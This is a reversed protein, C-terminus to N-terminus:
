TIANLLGRSRAIRAYVPERVVRSQRYSQVQSQNCRARASTAACTLHCPMVAKGAEAKSLREGFDNGREQARGAAMAEWTISRIEELGDNGALSADGNAEDGMAM